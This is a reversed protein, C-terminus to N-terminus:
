AGLRELARNKNRRADVGRHPLEGWVAVPRDGGRFECTLRSGYTVVGPYYCSDNCALVVLQGETADEKYRQVDAEEVILAHIGEGNGRRYDEPTSPLNVKIYERTKLLSRVESASM